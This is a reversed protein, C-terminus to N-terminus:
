QGRHCTLHMTQNNDYMANLEADASTLFIEYLREAKGDMIMQLPSINGLMPNETRYWTRVKEEDGDFYSIALGMVRRSAKTELPHPPYMSAM